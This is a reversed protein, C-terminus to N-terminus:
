VYLYTYSDNYKLSIMYSYIKMLFDAAFVYYICYVTFLPWKRNNVVRMLTVM